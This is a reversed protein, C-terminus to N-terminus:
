YVLTLHTGIMLVRINLFLVNELDIWNGLLKFHGEVVDENFNIISIKDELNPISYDSRFKQKKECMGELHTTEISNLNYNEKLVKSHDDKEYSYFPLIDYMFSNSNSESRQTNKEVYHIDKLGKKPNITKKILPEIFRSVKSIKTYKNNPNENKPVVRNSGIINNGANHLSSLSIKEDNKLSRVTICGKNSDQGKLSLVPYNENNYIRSFEELNKNKSEALILQSKTRLM